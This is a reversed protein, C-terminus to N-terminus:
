ITLTIARDTVDISVNKYKTIDKGDKSIMVNPLPSGIYPIKIVISEDKDYNLVYQYKLPLCFRRPLRVNVNCRCMRSGGKNRKTISYEDVDDPTTNNIVLICKDGDRTITYKAGQSIEKTDKFWEVAPKATEIVECELTITKGENGEADKLKELFEPPTSANPDKVKTPTTADSPAGKGAENETVHAAAADDENSINLNISATIEAAKNKVVIKYTEADNPGLDTIELTVDYNNKGGSRVDDRLWRTIQGNGFDAIYLNGEKDLVLNIPQNLQSSSIEKENGGAVTEGRMAGVLFFRQIRQNWQDAVYLAYHESDLYIGAPRDLHLADSGAEGSVGAVVTGTTAGKMWMIVRHNNTDSIFLNGYDDVALGNILSGLQNLDSGATEGGAVQVGMADQSTEYKMVKGSMALYLHGKRDVFIAGKEVREPGIM